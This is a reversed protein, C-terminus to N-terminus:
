SNRNRLMGVDAESMTNSISYDVFPTLYEMRILVDWGIGDEHEVVKYDEFSVINSHSKVKTMFSIEKVIEDVFGKFYSTVSQEDM